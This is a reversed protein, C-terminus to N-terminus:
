YREEELAVDPAGSPAFADAYFQEEPLGAERALDKRAAAIMLPNGCAYVEIGTLDPHDEIVARHVFGTRGQWDGQAESLVPVFSFSASRAAWKEIRDLMYLDARGRGGWYLRMPRKISRKLADEVISKIPAFGTGTAILIAPGTSAERLFFQGYPLEVALKRGPALGGLVGESFRGGPMHRVHLEVGDNEHPPNAMSYNRRGGDPMLVQLYQGAQFRARVGTPFRLNLIVVDPAPRAMRYVTATLSKRAPPASTEIRKPAIEVDSCPRAQCILVEKTAGAVRGRGRVELEGAVLPCECANCVGKRCSYPIAYGAREAADLITEDGNCAFAIDRGSIRVKFSM